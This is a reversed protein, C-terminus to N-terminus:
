ATQPRTPTVAAPAGGGFPSTFTATTFLVTWVGIPTAAFTQSTDTFTRAAPGNVLGASQLATAPAVASEVPPPPPPPPPDCCPRMLRSTDFLVIWTGTATAALRQSMATFTRACATAVPGADQLAVPFADAVPQSSTTRSVSAKPSLPRVIRGRVGPSHPPRTVLSPTMGVCVSSRWRGLLVIM